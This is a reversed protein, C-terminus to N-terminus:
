MDSGEELLKTISYIKCEGTGAIKIRMHDCRVPKVPITFTNTGNGSVIGQSIWIGSSDYECFVQVQAAAAKKMRINLRTIYKRDPYEYGIVGTTASWEVDDESSLCDEYYTNCVLNNDSDIFYLKDDNSCFMKARINDEKHWMGYNTDYVFMEYEGASNKMNIYYRSGICGSVADTYHEHGLASSISQPLSGDYACVDVSSKYYLMEDVLQISGSSGEQVGRCNTTQVQYNSPYNGYIKHICEEKFFLPYGLYNAAGTFKGDSGVSVTFSDTSIGAFSNWNKADGLKSSYIENVTLGDKLGYHCGWLRNNSEIVYEMTPILREVKVATTQQVTQDLLGIVVLYDDACLQVVMTNNLDTVSSGSITIGDGEKFLKGINPCAIKIYTTAIPVWMLSSSSWVKLSHTTGSTDLWYEGNEPNEPETTGTTTIDYAAADVNCMTFSVTTGAQSTFHAELEGYDTMDVTNIYKKDPWVILYAGMSVLQKPCMADDTSLQLNIIQDNIVINAGDVYILSDKATIGQPNNIHKVIGRKDRPSMVPYYAGTMNKMDSLEGENCRLNANYGRFVDTMSRSQSVQTLRPMNM